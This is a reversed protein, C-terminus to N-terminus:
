RQDAIQFSKVEIAEVGRYTRAELSGKVTVRKGQFNRIEKEHEGTLAFIRGDELQIGPQTFPENGMIYIRGTVEVEKEGKMGGALGTGWLTTIM